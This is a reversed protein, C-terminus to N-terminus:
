RHPLAYTAVFYIEVVGLAAIALWSLVHLVPKMKRRAEKSFYYKIVVALYLIFYAWRLAPETTM